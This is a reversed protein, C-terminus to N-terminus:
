NLLEMQGVLVLQLLKYENTEYNLLMRLVELAEANMKQAEDILLVVTKNEEIGKKFLFDKIAQKHDLINGTEHPVNLGFTDTLASIFMEETKFNPDLIIYFEINKREKFTQLLKRCLTTKGTGVDGLILSLGRKLRIEILIRLLAAKHEQSDYFFMPDPSTSFPEKDMGLLEFYNM